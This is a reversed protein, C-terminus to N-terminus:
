HQFSGKEANNAIYKGCVKEDTIIYVAAFFANVRRTSIM